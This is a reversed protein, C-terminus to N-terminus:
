ATGEVITTESTPGPAPQVGSFFSRFENEFERPGRSSWGGADLWTKRADATSRLFVVIRRQHLYFLAALGLLMSVVGIVIVPFGPDYSVQIGSFLTPQVAEVSFPTTQLPLPHMGPVFFMGWRAEEPRTVPSPAGVALTGVLRDQHNYFGVVVAPKNWELSATSPRGDASVTFDPLYNEIRGTWPQGPIPFRGRMGTEVKKGNINLVVQRIMGTVGWSAQYFRVHRVDLPQNVRITSELIPMGPRELRVRSAFTSPTTSKPYFEVSLQDVWLTWGDIRRLSWELLRNKTRLPASQMRTWLTKWDRGRPWASEQNALGSVLFTTSIIAQHGELIPLFTEFGLVSKMMAGLLIVVLSIHSVYSGWRQLRHRSARLAVGGNPLELAVIHYGRKGFARRLRESVERVSGEVTGEVRHPKKRLSSLSLDQDDEEQPLPVLGPDPPKNALKCVVVDFAMLGLLAAFLFTHYIDFFGWRELWPGVWPHSAIFASVKEANDGVQPLLTGVAALAAIILFLVVNFKISRFLSTM